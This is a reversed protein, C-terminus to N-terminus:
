TPETKREENLISRFNAYVQDSVDQESLEWVGALYSIVLRVDPPKSVRHGVTVFPGDTETLLRVPPIARIIRRGAETGTMASNVSFYCGNALAKELVALTGSYWHLIIAGPFGIGIMDVVDRAARRSHITLIKNGHTACNALITAFAKRQLGRDEADTTVFDLGVEGIFRTESSLETFMGIEESRRAVLEPHFGLAMRVFKGRGILDASRRFISPANTVAITAVRGQDIERVVQEYDPYLDVHCHTDILYM